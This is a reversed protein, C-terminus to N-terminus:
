KKAQKKIFKLIEDVMEKPSQNSSDFELSTKVKTNEYFIRMQEFRKPCKNALKAGPKPITLRDKFRSILVKKPASVNIFFIPVNSRKALQKLKKPDERMGEKIVSLGHKLAVGIMKSLMDELVESYKKYYKKSSYDSILWKVKDQRADFVGTFRSQIERNISSKGGCSPGHIVVFFQGQKFERQGM